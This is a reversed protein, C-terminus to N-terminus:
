GIVYYEQIIYRLTNLVYPFVSERSARDLFGM